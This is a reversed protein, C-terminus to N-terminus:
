ISQLLKLFVTAQNHNLHKLLFYLPHAMLPSQQKIIKEFGIVDGRELPRFLQQTLFMQLRENLWRKVRVGMGGAAPTPVYEIAYNPGLLWDFIYQARALHYDSTVVYLKQWSKDHLFLKWVWYANSTTNYSQEEKMLVQKPMGLTLAYRLMAEAETCPPNQKLFLSWKGAMVVGDVQGREFLQQAAQVRLLVSQPLVGTVRIGGALVICLARHTAM